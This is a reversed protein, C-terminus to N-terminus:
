EILGPHREPERARPVNTWNAANAERSTKRRHHWDCIATLNAANDTGGRHAPIIHDVDTARDRCRTGDKMKSTCRGGDRRLVATRIADWDSPLPTTRWGMVAGSM